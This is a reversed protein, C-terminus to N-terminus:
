YTCRVGHHAMIRAAGEDESSVGSAVDRWVARVALSAHSIGVRGFDWPVASFLATFSCFSWDECVPTSHSDFSAAVKEAAM